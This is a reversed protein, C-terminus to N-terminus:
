DVWGKLIAPPQGWWNPHVIVIGEAESIEECHLSIAPPLAADRRFELQPLIPDFGEGYLDHFTVDHGDGILQAEAARAIAHNLSDPDPHALIISVRMIVDVKSGGSQLM